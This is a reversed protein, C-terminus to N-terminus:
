REAGPLRGARKLLPSVKATASNRGGNFTPAPTPITHPHEYSLATKQQSSDDAGYSLQVSRCNGLAGTVEALILM